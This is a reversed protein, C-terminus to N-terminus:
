KKHAKHCAACSATAGKFAEQVGAADKAEIKALLADTGERLTKAAAAWDADPCRDDDMLIYSVENLLAARTALAEWGKDDTPATKMAEGLDACQPKVLGSMLQKTTLPRTKGKKIQTAANVSLATILGLVVALSLFKKMM